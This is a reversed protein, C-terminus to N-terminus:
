DHKDIKVTLKEAVYKSGKYSLHGHDFYLYDDGKRFLCHEQSNCFYESVVFTQITLLETAKQIIQDSSTIDQTPLNIDESVVPSLALTEYPNQLFEPFNTLIYVSAGTEELLTLLTVLSKSFEAPGIKDYTSWWSSSVIVIDQKSLTPLVQTTFLQYFNKCRESNGPYDIARCSAGTFQMVEVADVTSELGELLHAAKSDGYLILRQEDIEKICGVHLLHSAKQTQDFFCNFRDYAEKKMIRKNREGHTLVELQEPSFRYKNLAPLALAVAVGVITTFTAFMFISNNSIWKRNRFPVEIWRWTCFALAISACSLLIFTFSDPERLLKIRSFAFVPQHWLYISYSILGIGVFPKLSLLKCVFSHKHAYLIVLVTGFVPLFAYFSPFPISEDYFFIAALIAVLGISSLLNNSKSQSIYYSIYATISGALLEWARTIPLYFNANISKHSVLESTTLSVLAVFSITILIKDKHFRFMLYLFVPFLFYYQEEVALSWTHLLPKEDSAAEFYGSQRWFLINSSFLSVAMVSKSFDLLQSPTMWSWAFPLCIIIILFLAPLIRRARREYFKLFSFSNSELEKILIRTILYGSIVFFVDVGIFGGEFYEFGAHFLVVPIVALARLGDIEPRYKM